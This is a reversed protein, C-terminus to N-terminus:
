ARSPHELPRSLDPPGAQQAVDALARGRTDPPDTCILVPGDDVVEAGKQCTLRGVVDSAELGLHSRGGGLQLELPGGPQSVVDAGEVTGQFLVRDYEAVGGVGIDDRQGLVGQLHRDLDEVDAAAPDTPLTAPHCVLDDLGAGGLQDLPEQM